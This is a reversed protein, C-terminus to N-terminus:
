LRRRLREEIFSGYRDSALQQRHSDNVIYLSRRQVEDPLPVAHHVLLVAALLAVASLGLIGQALSFSSM